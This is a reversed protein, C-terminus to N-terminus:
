EGTVLCAQKEVLDWGSCVLKKPFEKAEKPFVVRSLYFDITAKNWSFLPLLHNCWQESSKM